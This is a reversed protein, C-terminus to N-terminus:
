RQVGSLAEDLRGAKNEEDSAVLTRESNKQLEREHSFDGDIPGRCLAVGPARHTGHSQTNGHQDSRFEHRDTQQCRDGRIQVGRLSHGSLCDGDGSQERHQGTQQYGAHARLRSGVIEARRIMARADALSNSRECSKQAGITRRATDTSLGFRSPSVIFLTSTTPVNAHETAISPQSQQSRSRLSVLRQM